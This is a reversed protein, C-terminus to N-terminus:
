LAKKIEAMRSEVLSINIQIMQVVEGHYHNMDREQREHLVRSMDEKVVTLIRIAEVILGQRVYEDAISILTSYDM